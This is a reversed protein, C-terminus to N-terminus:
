GGGPVMRRNVERSGRPYDTMLVDPSGLTGDELAGVAPDKQWGTARGHASDARVAPADPVFALAHWVM